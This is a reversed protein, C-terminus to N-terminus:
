PSQDRTARKERQEEQWKREEAELERRPVRLLRKLTETFETKAAAM